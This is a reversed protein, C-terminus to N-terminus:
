NGEQQKARMRALREQAKTRREDSPATVPHQEEYESSAMMMGGGGYPGAVGVMKERGRSWATVGLIAGMSLHFLGGGGLTIPNWQQAVIGDHYAQWVSWLIPAILFDFLVIAMYIWAMAPRWSHKVWNETPKQEISM